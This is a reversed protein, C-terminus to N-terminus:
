SKGVDLWSSCQDFCFLCTAHIFPFFKKGSKEESAELRPPTGGGGMSANSDVGGGV